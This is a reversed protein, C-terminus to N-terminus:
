CNYLMEGGNQVWIELCNKNGILFFDCYYIGKVNIWEIKQSLKGRLEIGDISFFVKGHSLCFIIIQIFIFFVVVSVLFFLIWVAKGTINNFLSIFLLCLLLLNILFVVFIASKNYYFTKIM